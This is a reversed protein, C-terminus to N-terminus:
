DIVKIIPTPNYGADAQGALNELEAKRALAKMKDGATTKPSNIIEQLAELETKDKIEEAPKDSIQAPKNKEKMINEREKIKDLFASATAAWGQPVRGSKLLNFERWILWDLADTTTPNNPDFPPEEVEINEYDKKETGDDYIFFLSIPTHERVIYNGERMLKIRVRNKDIKRAQDQGEASKIVLWNDDKVKRIRVYKGDQIWDPLAKDNFYLYGSKVRAM